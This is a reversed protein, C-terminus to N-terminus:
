AKLKQYFEMLEDEDMDSLMSKLKDKKSGEGEMEMEGEDEGMAPKEVVLKAKMRKELSPKAMYEECLEILEDLAGEKERIEEDDYIARM